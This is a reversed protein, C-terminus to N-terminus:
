SRIEELREETLSYCNLFVIGVLVMVGAIPGILQLGLPESVSYGFRNFIFPTVFSSAGVVIKIILGQAGFFMGERKQKNIVGDYEAIDAVMANPIIFAASLPVGALAIIITASFTHFVTGFFGTSILIMGFLASSVMMVTRKGFKNTFKPLFPSFIVAVVFAGAILFGSSEANMGLLVESIYPMAITLTNIGFWVTLYSCLYFLFDRNNLTKLVSSVMGSASIDKPKEKLPEEKVFIPTLLITGLAILGLVIGMVKFDYMSILVGSGAEAIMVGIVQTIGQLMTLTNREKKTKSIEPILALYPGVVITFCIFFLSLVVTLYVFNWISQYSVPPFWLAIFTIALPVSGYLIFPIRRGKKSTCNDSFYAVLPDAIGDFLRAIIMTLGVLALPILIQLGGDNAEPPAYYYQYWKVTTQTFISIGLYGLAYMLAMLKRNGSM